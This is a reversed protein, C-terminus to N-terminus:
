QNSAGPGRGWERCSRGGEALEQYVCARGLPPGPVALQPPHHAPLGEGALPARFQVGAAFSNELPDPRKRAPGFGPRRPSPPRVGEPVLVPFAQYDAGPRRLPAGFGWRAPQGGLRHAPPGAISTSPNVSSRSPNATRAYRTTSSFTPLAPRPASASATSRFISM